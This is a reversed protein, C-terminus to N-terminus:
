GQTCTAGNRGSVERLSESALDPHEIAVPGDILGIRVEPKGISREMLAPLKVIGLPGM